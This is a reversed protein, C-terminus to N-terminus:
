SLVVILRVARKERFAEITQQSYWCAFIRKTTYWCAFVVTRVINECSWRKRTSRLGKRTVASSLLTVLCAVLICVYQDVREAEELHHKPEWNKKAWTEMGSGVEPCTCECNQRWDECNEHEKSYLGDEGKERPLNFVCWAEEVCEKKEGAAVVLSGYAIM